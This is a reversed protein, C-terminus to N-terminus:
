SGAIAAHPNGAQRFKEGVNQIQDKIQDKSSTADKTLKKSVTRVSIPSCYGSVVILFIAYTITSPLNHLWNKSGQLVTITM